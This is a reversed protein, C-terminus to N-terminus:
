GWGWSISQYNGKEDNSLVVQAVVGDGFMILIFVGFFESFPERLFHRIRSWALDPQAQIANEQPIKHDILPGHEAHAAPVLTETQSGEASKPPIHEVQEKRFSAM